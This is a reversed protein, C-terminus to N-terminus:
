RKKPDMAIEEEGEGGLHSAVGLGKEGAFRAIRPVM